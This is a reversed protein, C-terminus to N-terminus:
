MVGVGGGGRCIYSIFFGRLIVQIHSSVAWFQKDFSRSVVAAYSVVCNEIILFIYGPDKNEVFDGWIYFVFVGGGINYLQMKEQSTVNGINTVDSPYYVKKVRHSSNKKETPSVKMHKMHWM